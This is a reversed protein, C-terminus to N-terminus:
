KGQVYIMTRGKNLGKIKELEDARHIVLKERELNPLDEKDFIKHSRLYDAIDRLEGVTHVIEFKKHEEDWVGGPIRFEEYKFEDRSGLDKRYEAPKDDRVVYVIQYRHIGKSGPSQLNMEFLGICPEDESVFSAGYMLNAM